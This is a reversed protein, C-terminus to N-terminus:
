ATTAEAWNAPQTRRFSEYLEVIRPDLQSAGEPHDDDGLMITRYQQFVAEPALEDNGRALAARLRLLHLETSRPNALLGQSTAWEAEIPDDLEDLALQAATRAAEDVALIAQTFIGELQHWSSSIGGYPMGTVFELAEHLAEVAASVPAMTTAHAVLQEFREFDSGVLPSIRYLGDGRPVYLEGDETTGLVKRADASLNHIRSKKPEEGPWLAEMITDSDVGHRHQALYALFEPTLSRAFQAQEGDRREVRLPGLVRIIVEADWPPPGAPEPRPPPAPLPPPTFVRDSADDDSASPDHDEIDDPQDPGPTDWLDIVTNTATPGPQDEDAGPPEVPTVDDHDYDTSPSSALIDAALDPADVITPSKADAITAVVDSREDFRLNRRRRTIGLAPVRIHGETLELQWESTAASTVVATVGARLTESAATLLQSPDDSTPDFVVLPTWGDGGEGSARGAPGDLQTHAAVSAVDAAHVSIRHTAEDLNAAVTVRDLGALEHGFGVCLIELTDALPTTALELAMTAMTDAIDIQTGTINIIGAQELDLLLQSKDTHGISVLTPFPAEAGTAQAGLDITRDLTWVTGGEAVQFPAPPSNHATDLLLTITDHTLMVGVLDPMAIDAPLGAGLARLAEDLDTLGKDDSTRTLLAETNAPPRFVPQTGPRRNGVARARNRAVIRWVSAAVLGIGSMAAVVIGLPVGTASEVPESAEDEDTLVIEDSPVPVPVNAVSGGGSPNFQPPTAPAASGDATPQQNTADVDTADAVGAQATAAQDTSTQDSDGTTREALPPAPLDQNTTPEPMVPPTIDNGDAMISGSAPPSATDPSSGNPSAPLPPIVFRQEPYILDPDNPPLLRDKNLEVMDAWFPTLEADTPARGWHESLIDEAISWFHDGEVVRIEGDAVEEVTDPADPTDTALPIVADDPLILEWGPSLSETRDNIVTGDAMSRGLNVTRIEKWRLGDGLLQESLSWFTDGPRVTITPADISSAPDSSSQTDNQYGTATTAPNYELAPAPTTLAALNGAAVPSTTFVTVTLTAAAVLKRATLQIGPLVPVRNAVRGRAVAIMEVLLAWTLQVWAFWAIAGLGYRLLTDVKTNDSMLPDTFVNILNDVPWGVFTALAAPVAILLALTAATAILGKILDAFRTM